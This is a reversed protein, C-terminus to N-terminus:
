LPELQPRGAERGGERGGKRGNKYIHMNRSISGLAGSM